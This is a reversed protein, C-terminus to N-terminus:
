DIKNKSKKMKKDFIQLFWSLLAILFFALLISLYIIGYNSKLLLYVLLDKPILVVMYFFLVTLIFAIKFGWEFM